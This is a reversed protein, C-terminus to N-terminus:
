LCVIELHCGATKQLSTYGFAHLRLHKLTKSSIDVKLAYWHNPRDKLDPQERLSALNPSGHIVGVFYSNCFELKYNQHVLLGFGNVISDNYWQPHDFRAPDLSEGFLTMTGPSDMPIQPNKQLPLYDKKGFLLLCIQSQSIWIRFTLRPSLTTMKVFGAMVKRLM